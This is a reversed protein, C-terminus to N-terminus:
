IRRRWQWRWTILSAFALWPMMPIV